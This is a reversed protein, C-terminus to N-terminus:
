RPIVLISENPIELRLVKESEGYEVVSKQGMGSFIVDVGEFATYGDVVPSNKAVLQSPLFKSYPARVFVYSPGKKVGSFIMVGEILYGPVGGCVFPIIFLSIVLFVRTAKLSNIDSDFLKSEGKTSIIKAEQSKKAEVMQTSINKYASFIIGLFISATILNWITSSDVRYIFFIFLVGLIGLALTSCDPNVLELQKKIKRKFIKHQVFFVFKQLLRLFPMFWLGLATLSIAFLGYILGFSTALLILLFGDGLSIGVPFYRIRYCYFLLCAGGLLVGIKFFLTLLKSALDVLSEITKINYNTM